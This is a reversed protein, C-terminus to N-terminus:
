LRSLHRRLLPEPLAKTVVDSDQVAHHAGQVAHHARLAKLDINRAWDRGSIEYHTGPHVCLPAFFPRGHRATACSHESGGISVVPIPSAISPQPRAVLLQYQQRM